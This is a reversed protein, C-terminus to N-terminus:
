TPVESDREGVCRISDFSEEHVEAEGGIEVGLGEAQRVIVDLMAASEKGSSTSVVIWDYRPLRVKM